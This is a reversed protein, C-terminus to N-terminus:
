NERLEVGLTKRFIKIMGLRPQESSDIISAKLEEPFPPPDNKDMGNIAYFLPEYLSKISGIFEDNFFIANNNLYNNVVIYQECFKLSLEKLLQSNEEHEFHGWWAGLFRKLYQAVELTALYLNEVAKVRREHLYQEHIGLKTIEKTLEHSFKQSAKDLQHGVWARALFVVTAFAVGGGTLAGWFAMWFDNM